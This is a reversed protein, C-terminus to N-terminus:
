SGTMFYGGGTDLQLIPVTRRGGESPSRPAALQLVISPRINFSSYPPRFTSLTGPGIVPRGYEQPGVSRFKACPSASHGRIRTSVPQGIKSSGGLRKLGKLTDDSRPAHALIM